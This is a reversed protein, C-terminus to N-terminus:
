QFIVGAEAGLALAALHAYRAASQKLEERRHPFITNEAEDLCALAKALDARLKQNRTVAFVGEGALAGPARRQTGTAM